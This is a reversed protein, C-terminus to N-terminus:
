KWQNEQSKAAHFNYFSSFVFLLLIIICTSNISVIEQANFVCFGENWMLNESVPIERKKKPLICFKEM